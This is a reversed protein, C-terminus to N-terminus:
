ELIRWDGVELGFESRALQILHLEHTQLHKFSDEIIESDDSILGVTISAVIVRNIDEAAERVDTSAIFHVEKLKKVFNRYDNKLNQELEQLKEVHDTNKNHKTKWVKDAGSIVNHATALFQAYLERKYHHFRTQDQRVWRQQEMTMQQRTLLYTTFVSASAGIIAGLLVPVSNELIKKLTTTLM